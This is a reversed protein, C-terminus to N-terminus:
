FIHRVGFDYGTSRGGPTTTSGGLAFASSGGNSLRAGTAYLATRKSLTYVYGIALKSSSPSGAATSKYHGYSARIWSPGVPVVLGALYGKGDIAGLTDRSYQLLVKAVNFDYSGGVNSQRANGSLYSTRSAAVAMSFPGGNYGIRVGSGTGDKPNPANSANEGLYHQVVVHLGQNGPSHYANFAHGYSWSISNSPRVSPGALTGQAVPLMADRLQNAGVGMTSFPDFTTYNWYTPTFDRGLRLEGWKGGVSVTSRRNFTLGQGGALPAPVGTAQNNSNSSQGAGTDSSIGAELWFGAKMEAGLDEIGRVGIQSSSLASSTLQTKSSLSGSGHTIATDVVGFLTVNSQAYAPAVAACALLALSTSKLSNM